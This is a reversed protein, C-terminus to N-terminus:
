HHTNLRDSEELIPRPYRGAAFRRARAGDGRTRCFHAAFPGREPSLKEEGMWLRIEGQFGRVTQLPVVITPRLEPLQVTVPYNADIVLDGHQPQYHVVAFEPQFMDALKNVLVRAIDAPQNVGSLNTSLEYFHSLEGERRQLDAMM